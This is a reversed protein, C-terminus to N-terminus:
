TAFVKQEGYRVAGEESKIRWWEFFATAMALTSHWGLWPAGQVLWHRERLVQREVHYRDFREGHGSVHRYICWRQTDSENFCAAIM